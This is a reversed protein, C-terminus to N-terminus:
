LFSCTGYPVQEKKYVSSLNSGTEYLQQEVVGGINPLKVLEGM